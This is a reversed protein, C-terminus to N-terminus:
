RGAQALHLQAPVLRRNVPDVGLGLAELTIAGMLVPGAAPGMMVPTTTYRGECEVRIEAVPWEEVRGDAFRVPQGRHPRCGLAELLPRPVVTYAAGTDVLADLSRSGARAGQGPLLTVTVTFRGM